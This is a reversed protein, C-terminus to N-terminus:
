GSGPAATAWAETHRTPHAARHVDFHAPCTRCPDHPDAAPEIRHRTGRQLLFQQGLELGPIGLGAIHILDPEGLSPLWLFSSKFPLDEIPPTQPQSASCWKPPTLSFPTPLRRPSSRSGTKTSSM